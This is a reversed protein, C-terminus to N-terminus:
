WFFVVRYAEGERLLLAAGPVEDDDGDVGIVHAVAARPGVAVLDRVRVQALAEERYSESMLRRVEAVSAGHEKAAAGVFEEPLARDLAAWDARAFAAAAAELARRAPALDAKATSPAKALAQRTAAVDDPTLGQTVAKQLLLARQAVVAPEDAEAPKPGVTGMAAPPDERPAPMDTAWTTDMGPEVAPKPDVPPALDMAPPTPAPKAPGPPVVPAKPPEDPRADGKSPAGAPSSASAKPDPRGAEPKSSSSPWWWPASALGLAGLAVVGIAVLPGRRLARRPAAASAAGGVSAAPSAVAPAAAAPERRAERGAPAAAGSLRALDREATIRSLDRSMQEASQYRQDAARRLARDVIDDLRRDLGRRQESPLEFRGVPAHGTLMEYFVVGLSYLDSRPDARSADTMQEPAMYKLTGLVAGTTTLAAAEAGAARAIGFDAIRANGEADLLINAPKIDRHVVGKKHAYDLAACTQQIIRLCLEEEVPGADLLSRLNVPKGDRGVVLAMVIYPTGDEVGMDHVAVIHPHDLSALTGAERDFRRRFQDDAALEPSLIKVAVPRGLATQSARYVRGMGGVGLLAEIRYRGGAFATGLLPDPPGDAPPAEPRVDVTGELSAAAAVDTETGCAPCRVRRKTPDTPPPLDAHCGRCRM